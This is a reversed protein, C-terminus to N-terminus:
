TVKIGLVSGLVRVVLESKCLFSCINTITEAFPNDSM